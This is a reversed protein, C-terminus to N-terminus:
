KAAGGDRRGLKTYVQAARSLANRLTRDRLSPDDDDPRWRKPDTTESDAQKRWDMYTRPQIGFERCITKQPSRDKVIGAHAANAYLVATNIADMVRPGYTSAGRKALGDFPSPRTGALIEGLAGILREAVETPFQQLRDRDGDAADPNRNTEATYAKLVVLVSEWLRRDQVGGGLKEFREAVAECYLRHYANAVTLTREAM